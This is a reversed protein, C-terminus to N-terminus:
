AVSSSAAIQFRSLVCYISWPPVIQYVEIARASRIACPQMRRAETDGPDYVDITPMTENMGAKCGSWMLGSIRWWNLVVARQRCCLAGGVISGAFPAEPAGLRCSLTLSGARGVEAAGGRLKRSAALHCRSSRILRFRSDHTLSHAPLFIPDRIRGIGNRLGGLCDLGGAAHFHLACLALSVRHHTTPDHAILM